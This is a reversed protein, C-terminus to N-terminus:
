KRNKMHSGESDVPDDNPLDREKEEFTSPDIDYTAQRKTM